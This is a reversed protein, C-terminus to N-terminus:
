LPVLFTAGGRCRLTVPTSRCVGEEQAHEQVSGGGARAGACERRRGRAAVMDSMGNADDACAIRQLRQGGAKQPGLTTQACQQQQQTCIAQAMDTPLMVIKM